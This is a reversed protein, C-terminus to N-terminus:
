LWSPPGRDSHVRFLSTLGDILQVIRQARTYTRLPAFRHINQTGTSHEGSRRQVPLVEKVASISYRTEPAYPLRPQSDRVFEHMGKQTTVPVDSPLVLTIGLLLLILSRYRSVNM